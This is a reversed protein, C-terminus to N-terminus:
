LFSRCRLSPQYRTDGKFSSLSEKKRHLHKKEQCTGKLPHGKFGNKYLLPLRGSHDIHAHTLLVFSLKDPDKLVVLNEQLDDGDYYLGYDVLFRTKGTDILIASGGVSQAAGLFQIYPYRNDDREEAFCTAFPVVVLMILAYIINGKM